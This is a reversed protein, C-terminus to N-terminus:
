IVLNYFSQVRSKVNDPLCLSRANLKFHPCLSYNIDFNCRFGEVVSTDCRLVKPSVFNFLLFYSTKSSIKCFGFESTFIEMLARYNGTMLEGNGEATNIDVVRM